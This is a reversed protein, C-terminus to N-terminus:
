YQATFMEEYIILGSPLLACERIIFTCALLRSQTGRACVFTNELSAYHNLTSVYYSCYIYTIIKFQM